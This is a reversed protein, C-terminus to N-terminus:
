LTAYVLMIVGGIAFLRDKISKRPNRPAKKEERAAGLILVIGGIIGLITTLTM